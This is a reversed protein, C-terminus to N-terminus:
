REPHRGRSIFRSCFLGIEYLFWMPLALLIQSFVDPPGILMAIVFSSIIAYPRIQLLQKRTTVGSWILLLIIVPVEFIVGFVFFLKMTFDLYQSIDPSILVGQPVTQTLFRFILPFIIFYAFAVGAYFLVVSSFLLPWIFRRERQYLAPAIFGWLQYLFVPVAIFMAVILVFEIPVTFPAMLSTAILGHGAPLHQLLPLALLTYLPNAFYILGCFIIGLTAVSVILRRRLEILFRLM